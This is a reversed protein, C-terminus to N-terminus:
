SKRYTAAKYNGYTNSVGSLLTAAANLNGASAAASGTMRSIEAKTMNSTYEADGVLRTLAASSVSSNYDLTAGVLGLQGGLREQAAESFLTRRKLEDSYLQTEQDQQIKAATTALLDLPTGASEVAGSAAIAARQAGQMQQYEIRSKVLNSRNVSDQALAQQEMNRANSERAEAEAQQLLLNQTATKEQLTAQAQLSALQTAADREQQAANYNAVAKSTQATSYASYSAIGVGILSVIATTIAM